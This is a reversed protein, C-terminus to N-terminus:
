STAFCWTKRTQICISVKSPSNKENKEFFWLKLMTNVNHTANLQKDLSETNHGCHLTIIDLDLVCKSNFPQNWTFQLKIM